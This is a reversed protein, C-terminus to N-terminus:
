QRVTMTARRLSRGGSGPSVRNFHADVYCELVDERPHILVTGAPLEHPLFLDFRFPKGRKEPPVAVARQIVLQPPMGPHDVAPGTTQGRRELVLVVMESGAHTWPTEERAGPSAARWTM